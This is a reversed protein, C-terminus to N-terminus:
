AADGQPRADPRRDVPVDDAAARFRPDPGAADDRPVGADTPEAPEAPEAEDAEGAEAPEAPTPAAIPLIGPRLVEEGRRSTTVNAVVVAIYPLVIAGVAFFALWWGQAFLLCVICVVRISMMVTYKIMRSRREAEPSPPLTTISHQQKMITAPSPPAGVM